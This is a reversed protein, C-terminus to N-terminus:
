FWISFVVASQDLGAQIQQVTQERSGNTSKSYDYIADLVVEGRLSMEDTVFWELGFGAAAGAHPGWNESRTVTGDAATSENINSTFGFLARAGVYSAVDGRGAMYRRFGPALTVSAILVESEGISVDNDTTESTTLLGNAQFDLTFATRASTMMSFGIMGGGGTLVGFSLARRGDRLAAPRQASAAEATSLLAAALLLGLAMRQLIRPAM